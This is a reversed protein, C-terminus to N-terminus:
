ALSVQKLHTVYISIKLKTHIVRNNNLLIQSFSTILTHILKNINADIVKNFKFKLMFFITLHM